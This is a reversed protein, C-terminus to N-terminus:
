VRRAAISCASGPKALMTEGARKRVKSGDLPAPTSVPATMPLTVESTNQRRTDESEEIHREGIIQECPARPRWHSDSASELARSPRRDFSFLGTTGTPQDNASLAM